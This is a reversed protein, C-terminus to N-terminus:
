LHCADSEAGFRLYRQESAPTMPLRKFDCIERGEWPPRQDNNKM